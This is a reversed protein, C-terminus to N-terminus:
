KIKKGWGPFLAMRAQTSNRNTANDEAAKIFNESKTRKTISANLRNQGEATNLSKIREINQMAASTYGSMAGSDGTKKVDPTFYTLKSKDSERWTEDGASSLDGRKAYRGSLRAQKIDSRYEKLGERKESGSLSTNQKWNSREAKINKLDSKIVKSMDVSQGQDDFAQDGMEYYGGHGLDSKPAYFAKAQREERKYRWGKAKETEVKEKGVLIAPMKRVGGGDKKPVLVTSFPSVKKDQGGERSKVVERKTKYGKPEPNNWNGEKPAEAVSLPKYKNEIQTAKPLEIPNWKVQSGKIREIPKPTPKIPETPKEYYMSAGTRAVFSRGVYGKDQLYKDFNKGKSAKYYEEPNFNEGYIQSYNTFKTGKPIYVKSVKGYVDPKVEGSLTSSNLILRRTTPDISKDYLDVVDGSKISKDLDANFKEASFSDSGVVKKKGGKVNFETLKIDGASEKIADPGKSYLALNKKYTDLNTEYAKLEDEYARAANSNAVFEEETYMKKQTGEEKPPKTTSTTSPISNSLRGYKNMAM